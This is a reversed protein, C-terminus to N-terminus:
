DIIAASVLREMLSGNKGNEGLSLDSVIVSRIIVERDRGGSRKWYGNCAHIIYHREGVQGLYLGIHGDFGLLTRFPVLNALRVEKRGPDTPMALLGFSRIELDSSRQLQYGFTRLVSLIFGSCDTTRGVHGWRYTAGLWKFCQILVNRDTMDPYGERVDERKSVYGSYFEVEGRSGADPMLVIFRGPEEGLLPIWGGMAVGCAPNGLERDRYVGAERGTVVLYREAEEFKRFAKPSDSWCLDAKRVWGTCQSTLVFFWRGDASPHYIAVPTGAEVQTQVLIDFDPDHPQRQLPAGTPLMRVQTRRITMGYRVRVRDPVRDPRTLRRMSKEFGKDKLKNGDSDYKKWSRLEEHKEEIYGRIRRGEVWPSEEFPDIQYGEQRVFKNIRMVAWKSMYVRDPYQARKIWYEPKLMGRSVHPIDQACQARASLLVFLVPFVTM